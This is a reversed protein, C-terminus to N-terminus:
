EEPKACFYPQASLIYPWDSMMPGNGPGNKFKQALGFRYPGDGSASRFISM